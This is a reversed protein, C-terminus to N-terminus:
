SLPGIAATAHPPNNFNRAWAAILYYPNLRSIHGHNSGLALNFVQGPPVKCGLVETPPFISSSKSLKLCLGPQTGMEKTQIQRQQQIRRAKPNEGSEPM